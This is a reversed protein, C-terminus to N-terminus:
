PRSYSTSGCTLGNIVGREFIISITVGKDEIDLEIEETKSYIIENLEIIRFIKDGKSLILYYLKCPSANNVLLIRAKGERCEMSAVLGSKFESVKEYSILLASFAFLAAVAVLLIKGNISL